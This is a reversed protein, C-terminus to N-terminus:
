VLVFLNDFAFQQRRQGVRGFPPSSTFVQLSIFLPIHHM